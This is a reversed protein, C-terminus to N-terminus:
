LPLSQVLVPHVTQVWCVACRTVKDFTPQLREAVTWPYCRWEYQCCPHVVLNQLCLREVWYVQHHPDCGCNGPRSQCQAGVWLWRNHGICQSSNVYVQAFATWSQVHTIQGSRNLKNFESAWELLTIARISAVVRSSSCPWPCQQQGLVFLIGTGCLFWVSNSHGDQPCTWCFLFSSIPFNPWLGEIICGRVVYLIFM